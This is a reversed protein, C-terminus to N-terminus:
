QPEKLTVAKQLRSEARFDPELFYKLSGSANMDEPNRKPEKVRVTNLHEAGQLLSCSYFVNEWRFRLPAMMESKMFDREFCTQLIWMWFATRFFEHAM